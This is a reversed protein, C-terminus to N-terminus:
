ATEEEEEEKQKKKKLCFHMIKIQSHLSTM